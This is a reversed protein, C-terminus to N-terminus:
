AWRGFRRTANGHILVKDNLTRSVPIQALLLGMVKPRIMNFRIQRYHLESDNRMELEGLNLGNHRFLVKQEPVQGATRATSNRVELHQALVGVVDDNLFVRFIDGDKVTLYKVEGANFLSKHIFASLRRSDQLRSALERMYPRLRQKAPGKDVEYEKFTSPFAKICEALLDGIGNMVTFGTDTEFRSLAYLFVQWKKVGSKVSHADGSPDIVDKKAAVDNEYGATLGIALAFALADDHGAQRM